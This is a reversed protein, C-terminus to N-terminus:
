EDQDKQGGRDVSEACGGRRGRSIKPRVQAGCKLPPPVSFEPLCDMPVSRRYLTQDVSSGGLCSTFEVKRPLSEDVDFLSQDVGDPM